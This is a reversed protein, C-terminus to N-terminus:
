ASSPMRSLSRHSSNLRTSKRDIGQLDDLTYGMASLHKRLVELLQEEERGSLNSNIIVPYIKKDDLYAYKLTDPLAKLEFIPDGKRPTPMGLLEVPLDHKLIAPQRFFVEDIEEREQMFM